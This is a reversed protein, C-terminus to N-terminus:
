PKGALARKFADGMSTSSKEGTAAALDTARAQADMIMEAVPTQHQNWAREIDLSIKQQQLKTIKDWASNRMMQNIQAQSYETQPIDFMQGAIPKNANEAVFKGLDSQGYKELLRNASQRAQVSMVDPTLGLSTLKDRYANLTAQQTPDLQVVGRDGALMETPQPKYELMKPAPPAPPTINPEGTMAKIEPRDSVLRKVANIRSNQLATAGSRAASSAVYDAASAAAMGPLGGTAFGAAGGAIPGLRSGAIRLADTLLGTRSASELAAIEDPRYGWSKLPSKLLNRAQTAMTKAPNDSSSAIEQIRELDRMKMAAAWAQIGDKGGQAGDIGSNFIGERFSNQMQQLRMVSSNEGARKAAAIRDGLNSDIEMAGQISLPKGRLSDFDAATKDVINDGAFARGEVTRSSHSTVRNLINDSDKVPILGVANDSAGYGRGSIDKLQSSSLIDGEGKMAGAVDTVSSGAKRALSAGGLTPINMATIASTGSSTDGLIGPLKTGIDPLTALKDSAKVIAGPIERTLPAVGVINATSDVLNSIRPYQKRLETVAPDLRMLADSTQPDHRDIFDAVSQAGSAAADKVSQPIVAGALKGAADAVGGAIGKGVINYGAEAPNLDGSLAGNWQQKIFDMRGGSEPLQPKDFQIKSPDVPVFGGAGQPACPADFKIQSPDVQVFPM